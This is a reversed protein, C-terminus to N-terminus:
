YVGGLPRANGVPIAGHAGNISMEHSRIAKWTPYSVYGITKGDLNMSITIDGNIASRQTSPSTAVIQSHGHNSIVPMINQASSKAQEIMKSLNGAFGNPNVKARAEIAEAIHGESTDRKPNIAVEPEGPVEGFISLKDAWGGNAYWHHARWFAAAGPGGGYRSVYSKMWKLQTIPNTRWDRGAAAMKSGPLSQPLGYAGSSPNTANVRWGSENTVIYNISSFWSAPIGAQKMWHEHSGTAAPSTSNSDLTDQFKDAATKIMKGIATKALNFSGTTTRKVGGFSRQSNLMKDLGTKEKLWSWIENIGQGVLDMADDAIDSAKDLSDKVFDKVKAGTGKAYGPLKGGNMAM